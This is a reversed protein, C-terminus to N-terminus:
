TVQRDERDMQRLEHHDRGAAIARESGVGIVQRSLDPAVVRGGPRVARAAALAPYGAGCAVDLVRSGARWAAVYRLWATLPAFNHETWESRTAWGAAVADWHKRQRDKVHASDTPRRRDVRARALGCITSASSSTPLFSLPRPTTSTEGNHWVRPTMRCPAWSCCPPASPKRSCGAPM